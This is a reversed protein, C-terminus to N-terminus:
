IVRARVRSRWKSAHRQWAVRIRIFNLRRGCTPMTGDVINARSRHSEDVAPAAGRPSHGSPTLGPGDFLTPSLDASACAIARSRGPPPRGCLLCTTCAPWGPTLQPRHLRVLGMSYGDHLARRDRRELSHWPSQSGMASLPIRTQFRGRDHSNPRALTYRAEFRGPQVAPDRGGPGM